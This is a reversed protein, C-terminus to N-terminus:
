NLYKNLILIHRQKDSIIENLLAILSQNTIKSIAQQYDRIIREERAINNRIFTNQDTLYNVNRASWFSGQGNSFRPIGGFSQIANGLLTAHLLEELSLNKLDNALNSNIGDSLINQFLYSNIGTLSGYRGSLLNKLLRVTRCDCSANTIQTYIKGEPTVDKPPTPTPTIIIQDQNEM